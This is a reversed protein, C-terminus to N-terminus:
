STSCSAPLTPRRSGRPRGPAGRAASRACRAASRREPVPDRHAVVVRPQDLAGDAPDSARVSRRPRLRRGCREEDPRHLASSSPSPVPSARGRRGSTSRATVRATTKSRSPTSISESCTQSSRGRPARARARRGSAAPCRLARHHAHARGLPRAVHVVRDPEGSSGSSILRSRRRASARASRRRAATAGRRARPRAGSRRRAEREPERGRRVALQDVGHELRAPDGPEEAGGDGGLLDRAPLRRGVDVELGGRRSRGDGPSSRRPRPSACRCGSPSPPRSASCRSGSRASGARRRGHSSASTTTPESASSVASATLSRPMVTSAIVM